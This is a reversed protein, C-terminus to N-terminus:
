SIGAHLSKRIADTPHLHRLPPQTAEKAPEFFRWMENNLPRAPIVNTCFCENRNIGAEALMRTLEKGSAGVFPAQAQQEEFGWAEGVIVIKADRPGSTGFWIDAPQTM